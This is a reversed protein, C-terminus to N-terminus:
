VLSNRSKELQESGDQAFNTSIHSYIWGGKDKGPAMEDVPNHTKSDLLLIKGKVDQSIATLYTM